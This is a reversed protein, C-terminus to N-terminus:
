CEDKVSSPSTIKPASIAAPTKVGRLNWPANLIIQLKPIFSSALVPAVASGLLGFSYTRLTKGFGSVLNVKLMILAATDSM